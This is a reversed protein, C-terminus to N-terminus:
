QQSRLHKRFHQRYHHTCSSRIRLFLLAAASADAAAQVAIARTLIRQEVALRAILATKRAQLRSQQIGLSTVQSPTQATSLDTRVSALTASAADILDQTALVDAQAVQVSPLPPAAAGAGVLPGVLLGASAAIALHV